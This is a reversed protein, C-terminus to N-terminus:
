TTGSEVRQKLATNMAEFGNKTDGDLARRFLPVLLGNFDEGHGLLTSGDAAQSLRFHHEGDFLGPVLLRGKWRFERGAAHRLVIPRFRMPKGGPPQINVTLVAGEVPSGEISRIFPNWEPYRAFDLLVKWVRDPPAAIAISTEISHRM